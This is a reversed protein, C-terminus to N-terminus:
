LSRHSLAVEIAGHLDRSRIPKGLYGHPLTSKLRRITEDDDHATTYIVGVKFQDRLIRATEIGDLRGGLRIDVLALDPLEQAALLADEGSSVAAMVAYGLSRVQDELDICQTAEDEVILIRPVGESGTWQNPARIGALQVIQPGIDEARLCHDVAVSQLANRPMDPYVAEVPDQVLAVGGANKIEWLGAVGDSLTGSLIIGAVSSGYVAAASRFLVNVAPRNFPDKPSRQLRVRGRELVMHEDPPAIYVVGPIISENDTAFRVPLQSNSALAKPLQSPFDPAIHEVVFIAAGIGAPIASTIVKLPFISGASGGIVVIRTKGFGV